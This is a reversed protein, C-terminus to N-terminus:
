LAFRELAIAVGDEDNALTVEDAVERAEPVANAMAVALGAERLMEVDNTDDGIALVSERPLGLRERVRRVADAKGAGRAYAEFVAGLYQVNTVLHQTMRDGFADVFRAQAPRLREAEAWVAVQLIDETWALVDDVRHFWERNRGHIDSWFRDDPHEGDVVFDIGEEYRDVYVLPHHGEARLFRVADVMDAPDMPTRFVTVDDATRRALIGNHVALTLPLGLPELLPAAIRYRRGTCILIETGRGALTVIARRARESIRHRSDLLTGDLDLAVLGFPGTV